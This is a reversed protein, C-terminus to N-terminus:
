SSPHASQIKQRIKHALHDLQEEDPLGVLVVEGDMVLTPVARVGYAEALRCCSGDRCESARHVELSVGEPLIHRVMVETRDCLKCDARFLEVKM